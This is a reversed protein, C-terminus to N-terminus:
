LINLHHLFTPLGLDTIVKLSCSLFASPQYDAAQLSLRIFIRKRLKAQIRRRGDAYVRCYQIVSSRERLTTMVAASKWSCRSPVHSIIFLLCACSDSPQCYSSWYICLVSSLLETGATRFCSSTQYECHGAPGSNSVRYWPAPINAQVQSSKRESRRKSIM